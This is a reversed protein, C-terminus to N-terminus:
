KAGGERTLEYRVWRKNDDNQEWISNIPHGETRLQRIYESLRTIKYYYFAWWSTINGNRQLHDLVIERQTMENGRKKTKQEM